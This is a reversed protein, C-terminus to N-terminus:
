SSCRVTGTVMGDGGYGHAGNGTLDSSVGSGIWEALPLSINASFALSAGDKRDDGIIRAKFYVRMDSLHFATYEDGVTAYEDTVVIGQGHQWLTLPIALGVQFWKVFNFSALIDATLYNEVADITQRSDACSSASECNYLVLPRHQYSLMLGVSPTMDDGIEPSEVAFFNLPGPSPQFLQISFSTDM